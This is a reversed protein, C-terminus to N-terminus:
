KAFFNDNNVYIIKVNKDAVLKSNDQVYRILRKSQRGMFKNWYVIVIYDYSGASFDKTQSLPQIYKLHDGYPLISDLPAQQAPPFTTFIEDRNWQLNPFGGAYCNVQFSQLQTSKDYYLVQLPQYHNKQQALFHTTDLSTLFLFYTSDLEYCDAIPINFKKSYHLITKEDIPEPNKMGYAVNMITQCSAFGFIVVVLILLLFFLNRM